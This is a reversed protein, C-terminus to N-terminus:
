LAYQLHAYVTRGPEPVKVGAAFPDRLYSLHEFFFRDFLNRVGAFVKVRQVQFGARVNTIWWAPTPEESLRPDVQSQRAAFHEEAEAFAWGRDWRLAISGKLPPIEALATDHTVDVGRTFAVGATAFLRRPLALRASAEGGWTRADVNQWTKARRTGADVAAPAIYDALWSHFLHAKVLSRGSSWRFGADVEDSRVPDLAPFGLWDANGGMGSLAFYREQADPLRAGHGWGAHLTLGGVADWEVQANGGPLVDTRALSLDSGPFFTRYLDTRDVGARTRAVDVRVGGLLRVGPALERVADSYVGFDVTTVDPVSAEGAYPTGPAARLVRTTVNDWKRVYFDAGARLEVAEGASAELKGGWVSSRAATRMSWPRPLEGTCTAPNAASSCREEDTMDHTVRSFYAQAFATRLPGGADMWWTAAIRDTADSIGDMRLFPYLVADAGQRTYALELRNGTAGGVGIKAFGTRVRYATRGGSPDRFRAANPAGNLLSPIARTVPDGNGDEFVDGAKLAGGVLLAYNGAAYSFTGSGTLAAASAGGLNMELGVGPHARRTRVDVVGALAGPHSVDFPGKRVEVRDVEAYDLHFVPPDMRSPCAGHVKAGDITVAVNDRQMGRVVVDSAIGGKRIKDLGPGPALAEGLDRAPTERVERVELTDTRPEARSKVVIEEMMVEIQPEDEAAWAPPAMLALVL